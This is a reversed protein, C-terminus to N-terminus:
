EVEVGDIKTVTEAIKVPINQSYNIKTIYLDSDLVYYIYVDSGVPSIGVIKVADGEFTAEINM